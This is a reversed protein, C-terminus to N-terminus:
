KKDDEKDDHFLRHVLYFPFVFIIALTILMWM